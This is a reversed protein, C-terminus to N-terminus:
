ISTTLECVWRALPNAATKWKHCHVASKHWHLVAGMTEKGMGEGQNRWDARQQECVDTEANEMLGPFAEQRGSLCSPEAARCDIRCSPKCQLAQGASDCKSRRWRSRQFTKSGCLSRITNQELTGSGELCSWCIRAPSLHQPRIKNQFHNSCNERM